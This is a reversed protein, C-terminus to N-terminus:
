NEIIINNIKLKIKDTNYKEPVKSRGIYEILNENKYEIGFASSEKDTRKRKKSYETEIYLDYFNDKQAIVLAIETAGINSFENKKIIELKDYICPIIEKIRPMYNNSKPCFDHEIEYIGYKKDKKVKFYKFKNTNNSNIYTAEEAEPFIDANKYNIITNKGDKVAEFFNCGGGISSLKEYEIPIFYKSCKNNYCYLSKYGQEKTLVNYIYPTNRNTQIIGHFIIMFIVIAVTSHRFLSNKNLLNYFILLALPAFILYIYKLGDYSFLSNEFLFVLILLALCNLFSSNPNKSIDYITIFSIILGIVGEAFLIFPFLVIISLGVNEYALLILSYLCLSIINLNKFIFTKNKTKL